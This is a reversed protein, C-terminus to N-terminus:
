KNKNLKEMECIVAFGNNGYYHLLMNKKQNSKTEKRRWKEKALERENWVESSTQRTQQATLAQQVQSALM